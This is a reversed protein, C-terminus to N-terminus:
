QWRVNPYFCQRSKVDELISLLDEENDNQGTARTLDIFYIERKGLTIISSRLQSASGYSIKGISRQNQTYLYKVFISKGHNGKKDYISIIARPDPKKINGSEDFLIDYLKNQWMFWNKRDKCIKIDEGKYDDFLSGGIEKLKYGENKEFREIELNYNSLSYAEVKFEVKEPIYKECIRNLQGRRKRAGTRFLIIEQQYKESKFKYLESQAGISGLVLDIEDLLESKEYDTLNRTEIRISFFSNKNEM